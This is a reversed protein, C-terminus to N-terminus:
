KFYLADIDFTFYMFHLYILRDWFLLNSKTDTKSTVFREGLQDVYYSLARSFFVWEGKIIIFILNKIKTQWNQTSTSDTM